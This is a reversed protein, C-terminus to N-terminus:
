YASAGLSRYSMRGLAYARKTFPGFGLPNCLQHKFILDFRPADICVPAHRFGFVGRDREVGVKVPPGVGEIRGLQQESRNSGRM